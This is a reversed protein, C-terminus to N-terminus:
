SATQYDPNHSDRRRYVPTGADDRHQIIGWLLYVKARLKRPFPTLSKFSEYFYHASRELVLSKGTNMEKEERTLNLGCTWGELLSSSKLSCVPKRKKEKKRKKMLARKGETQLDVPRLSQPTQERRSGISKKKAWPLASIFLFLRSQPFPVFKFILCNLFGTM